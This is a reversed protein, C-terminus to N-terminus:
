YSLTLWSPKRRSVSDSCVGGSGLYKALPFFVKVRACVSVRLGFVSFLCVRNERRVCCFSSPIGDDDFTNRGNTPPDEDVSSSLVRPCPAPPVPCFVCRCFRRGELVIIVLLLFRACPCPNKRCQSNEKKRCNNGDDDYDDCVSSIRSPRPPTFSRYM